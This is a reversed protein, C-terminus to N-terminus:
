GGFLSGAGSKSVSPRPNRKHKNTNAKNCVVREGGPTEKNIIPDTIRDSSLNEPYIFFKTGNNSVLWLPRSKDIIEVQDGALGYFTRSSLGVVDKVLYM